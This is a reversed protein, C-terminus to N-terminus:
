PKLSRLQKLLLRAHKLWIRWTKATDTKAWENKGRGGCMGYKQALPCGPCDVWDFFMKCLPCDSDHWEENICSEMQNHSVPANRPEQEAWAIMRKWHAISGKIAKATREKLTSM